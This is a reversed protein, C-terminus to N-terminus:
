PTAARQSSVLWGLWATGSAVAVLVVVAAVRSLDAFLRLTETSVGTIALGIVPLVPVGCGAVSCPGTSLGLVSTVAGAAGAGGSAGTARAGHRVQARHYAWVAFYAGFLLSTVLVRALTPVDIIFGWEVGEVPNDASFWAVAMNSLFELKRSLSDKGSALYEPLRSLWPNFTFFDVPKRAISLVVLPLVLNLAFVGTAVAAFVGPRARVGTAVGSSVKSIASALRLRMLQRVM